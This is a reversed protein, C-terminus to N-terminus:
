LLRVEEPQKDPPSMKTVPPSLQEPNLNGVLNTNTPTTEILQTEIEDLSQLIEQANAPRKEIDPLTLWDILNLLLPSIHIAHNQWHLLNHQM